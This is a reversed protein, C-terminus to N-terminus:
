HAGHGITVPVDCSVVATPGLSRRPDGCEACVTGTKWTQEFTEDAVGQIFLDGNKISARVSKMERHSQWRFTGHESSAHLELGDAGATWVGQDGDSTDCGSMGWVFTGDSKIELNVADAGRPLHWVGIIKSDLPNPRCGLVLLSFVALAVRM